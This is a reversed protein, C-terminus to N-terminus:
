DEKLERLVEMVRDPYDSIIGDIGMKLFTEIEEKDNITWPIVKMGEEQMEAIANPSLQPYYPSYIDPQFGLKELNAKWPSLNETLYALQYDPHAEHMYKLARIDFSQIIGYKQMGAREIEDIVLDCYEQVPPHFSGDWEPRSKIEINFYPVRGGNNESAQKVAEFLDSLLPKAIRFKEQEPFRSHVVSGCDFSKIEDYTLLYLNDSENAAKDGAPNLCIDSSFFPEHSVVVQKDRSIVVDMELTTVGIEMAKLMAPITNEPMLGRCGRHGQVDITNMVQKEDATCSVLFALSFVFLLFRM